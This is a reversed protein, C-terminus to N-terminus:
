SGITSFFYEYCLNERLCQTNTMSGNYDEKCYNMSLVRKEVVATFPCEKGVNNSKKELINEQLTRLVKLCNKSNNFVGRFDWFTRFIKLYTEFLKRLDAVTRLLALYEITEFLKRFYWPVVIWVLIAHLFIGQSIRSEFM